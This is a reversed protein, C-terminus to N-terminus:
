DSLTLHLRFVSFPFNWFYDIRTNCEAGNPIIHHVRVLDWEIGGLIHIMGKDLMNM